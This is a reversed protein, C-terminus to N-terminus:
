IEVARRSTKAIRVLWSLVTSPGAQVSITWYHVTDKAKNSDKSINFYFGIQVASM